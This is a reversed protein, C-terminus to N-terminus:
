YFQIALSCVSEDGASDEQSKLLNLTEKDPLDLEEKLELDMSHVTGLPRTWGGLDKVPVIDYTGDSQQKELRITPKTQGLEDVSNTTEYLSQGRM